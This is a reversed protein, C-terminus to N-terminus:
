SGLEVAPPGARAVITGMEWVTEGHERLTGLTTEVDSEAVVVTMGVGCNFTRWMEAEAINGLEVVVDPFREHHHEAAFLLSGTPDHDGQIDFRLYGRGEGAGDEEHGFSMTGEGSASTATPGATPSATPAAFEPAAFGISMSAGAVLLTGVAATVNM